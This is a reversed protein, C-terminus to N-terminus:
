KLFNERIKKVAAELRGNNNIIIDAANEYLRKRESYLREVAAKDESLPRGKRALKDTDRRLYFIKGNQKLANINEARKVAGGGTAIIRGGRSVEKIVESEIDRFYEEGSEAFIEPITKNTKKEIEADTDILERGLAASLRRGIVSKGSGPMGILVIDTVGAKVNKYASKIDAAKGTFYESAKAGQAVLMMLGGACKVSLKEAESILRTKLPNYVVDIVGSLKPFRKLEVPLGQTDPFMGCPTANIIVETDTLGYVTDYNLKGGRSVSNVNKAGADRCVATVTKCTGGSGLIVVNKGRLNIGASKALRKFGFYDTNYGYLKGGKNVVTNVAGIREAEPSIGDLYKIVETKYPITVNIGKFDRLAFFDELEEKPLEKLEYDYDGFERHIKVSYSHILREGILGYQM